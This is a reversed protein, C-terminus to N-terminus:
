YGTHAGEREICKLLRDRTSLCNAQLIQLPMDSWVKKLVTKLESLTSFQHKRLEQEMWAWISEIWSLDPSNPPWNSLVRIGQAKLFERTACATHAPAGDQQFVWDSVSHRGFLHKAQPLLTDSLISQYEAAAVGKQFKSFESKLGTTGTAFRLETKGYYSVGAYVHVKSPFKTSPRTPKTGALVWRKPGRRGSLQHLYFYKSDTFMVKTWARNRNGKAFALRKKLQEETLIPISSVHCARLGNGGSRVAARVTNKSVNSSCHGETVLKKAVKRLTSDPKGASLLM